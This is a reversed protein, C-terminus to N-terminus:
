RQINVFILLNIGKTETNNNNPKVNPTQQPISILNKKM